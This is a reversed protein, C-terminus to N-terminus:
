KDDEAIYSELEEVRKMLKDIDKKKGYSFNKTTKEVFEKMQKEIDVKKDELTKVFDDIIKKGEETTIKKDKVLDNVVDEVKEKTLAAIGVGTYFLKKFISEKKEM